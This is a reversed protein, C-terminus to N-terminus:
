LSRLFRELAEIDEVSVRDGVAMPNGAERASLLEFLTEASGDHYYPGSVSLGHLSPTRYDGGRFAHLSADSYRSSPDHCSDCGLEQFVERGRADEDAGVPRAMDGHGSTLYAALARVEGEPLGSGQLRKVGERVAHPLDPSDGAWRLRTHLDLRGALVPTQLVKGDLSWSVGDSRGELHCTSCAVGTIGAMRADNASHFLRRGVAVDHPLTDSGVTVKALITDSLSDVVAIQHDLALHVYARTGTPDTVVARAPAGIDWVKLPTSTPDAKSTDFTMMMGSSEGVAFVRARKPDHFVGRVAGLRGMASLLEFNVEPLRGNTPAKLPVTPPRLVKRTGLDVAALSAAVPVQAGNAYCGPVFTDLATGENKLMYPVVARTGGPSMAVAYAGGPSREPPQLVFLEDILESMWGDRKDPLDAAQVSKLQLDVVTASEGLLHAVVARRGDPSVAVGRPQRPVPVSWQAALDAAALAHLRRDAATTVLLTAGDPTLALGYPEDGVDREATVKGADVAVVKGAGRCSVFVRGDPAAIVQEPRECVPTPVVGMNATDIALLRGGDADVAYLSQGTPDITLSAGQLFPRFPYRALPLAGTADVAGKATERLDKPAERAV